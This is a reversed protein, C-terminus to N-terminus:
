FMKHSQGFGVGSCHTTESAIVLTKVSEPKYFFHNINHATFFMSHKSFFTSHKKFFTSHKQLFTYIIECFCIYTKKLRYIHIERVIPTSIESSLYSHKQRYTHFFCVIYIFINFSLLPLKLAKFCAFFIGLM